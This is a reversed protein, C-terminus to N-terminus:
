NYSTSYQESLIKTMDAEERVLCEAGIALSWCVISNLRWPPLSKTKNVTMKETGLVYHYIFMKQVFSLHICSHSDISILTM